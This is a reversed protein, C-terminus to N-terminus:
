VEMEQGPKLVVCEIGIEDLRRAFEEPDQEIVDFASYHM